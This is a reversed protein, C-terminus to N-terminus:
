GGGPLAGLQQALTLTDASVWREVIKGNAVRGVDSHTWSVQKGSPAVGFLDAGTHTGRCIGHVAVMDGEAILIGDSEFTLDPLAERLKRYVQVSSQFDHAGWVPNHEVYNGPDIVSLAADKDASNIAQVFRLMLRKNEGRSSGTDHPMGDSGKGWEASRGGATDGLGVMPMAGLQEMMGLMDLEGWGAVIKGDTIRDIGVSTCVVKKGSAPIGYFEGQHTGRWTLLAAVLDGEAVVGDVSMHGDPFASRWTSILGILGDPGMEIPQGGAGHVQMKPSIIQHAVTYEGSNWAENFWRYFLGKNDEEQSV